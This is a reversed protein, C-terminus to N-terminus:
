RQRGAETAHPTANHADTLGRAHLIEFAERTAGPRVFVASDCDSGDMRDDEAIWWSDISEESDLKPLWDMVTGQAHTRDVAETVVAVLITFESM